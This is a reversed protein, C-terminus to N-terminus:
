FRMIGAVLDAIQAYQREISEVLRFQVRARWLNHGPREVKFYRDGELHDTLFRLGLEFPILRIADPLLRTDDATLFGRTEAFYRSLIARCLDLDFRAEAPDRPSEGAPNCCSRLCDGLDHHLLGPQVTDLDVLSVAEGAAADFLINDLKPDGHVVRLPLAGRQRADELVSVIGGRAEAFALCEGLEGDRARDTRRAAAERYRAFYRPTNHFGPRTVHLRRIDLDHTLEHFRGLAYGVEGAARADRLVDLSRTNDIFSLARWFDGQPDVFFDRDGHGPFIAPLRLDRGGHSQRQAVHRLLTRLNDMLLEPQPFVRRNIRQLIAHRAPSGGLTVLFTDNILGRGHPHIETVTAGLDFALAANWEPSM